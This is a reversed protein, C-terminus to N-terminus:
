TCQELSKGLWDVLRPPESRVRTGRGPTGGSDIGRNPNDHSRCSNYDSLRTRGESMSKLRLSLLYQNETLTYFKSSIESMVTAQTVAM